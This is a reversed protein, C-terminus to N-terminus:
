RTGKLRLALARVASDRMEPMDALHRALRLRESRTRALDYLDVARRLASLHEGLRLASAPLPEAWHQLRHSPTVKTERDAVHTWFRYPASVSAVTPRMPLDSWPPRQWWRWTNPSTQRQETVGLFTLHDLVAGYDVGSDTSWLRILDALTAFTAGSSVVDVFATRGRGAALAAPDLHEAALYAHLAALEAPYRRTIEEASGRPCSFQLLTLAPADAVGELAGSLYDFMSELSRGVFVLERARSRVLVKAAAQRLDDLFGDYATAAPCATVDGLQERRAINWRFPKTPFPEAMAPIAIGRRRERETHVPPPRAIATVRAVM